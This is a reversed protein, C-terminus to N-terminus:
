YYRDPMVVPALLTWSYLLVCLWTSVIKAWVASMSRGIIIFEGSNADISNWNTLLMAMYMGAICFIIHFFSYSYQVGYKEDDEFDSANDGSGQGELDGSGRARKKSKKPRSSMNTEEYDAIASEPLAGAAVADKLAQARLAAPNQSSDDTDENDSTSNRDRLYLGNPSEAQLENSNMLSGSKTAATSTSYVIAAMTFIAGFVVLTTRTGTSDILPNCKKDIKDGVPLGIMASTVLYTCYLTVMGAQALGSKFNAEQVKPHIALFSVLICLIVNFTTFFQNLGCGSKGFVSYQIVTLTLFALYAISTGSVLIYKWNDNYTEEYREICTEAITHAFDVLLILQVFIFISAGVVTIYTSYFKFFENPIFFSGIILLLLLFFKYGWLSNQIKARKDRSDDIGYLSAALIAHWLSQAFCVRHVAMVGYCLNEPCKLNVFGYTIHKIKEIGWNTTMSWALMSSMLFFGAYVFRTSVSGTLKVRNAVLGCCSCLAASICSLAQGGLCSLVLGM